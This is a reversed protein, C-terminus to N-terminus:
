FGAAVIQAPMFRKRGHPRIVAAPTFSLDPLERRASPRSSLCAHGLFFEDDFRMEPQLFPDGFLLAVEFVFAEVVDEALQDLRGVALVVVLAVLDARILSDLLAALALTLQAQWQVTM